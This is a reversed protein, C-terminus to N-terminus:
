SLEVIVGEDGDLPLRDTIIEDARDLKTSFVVRGREAPTPALLVEPRPGLNLAIM